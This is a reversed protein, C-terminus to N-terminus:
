VAGGGGQFEAALTVYRDNREGKPWRRDSAPRRGATNSTPMILYVCTGDKPAVAGYLYITNAFSSPARASAECGSFLRKKLLM